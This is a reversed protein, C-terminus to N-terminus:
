SMSYFNPNYLAFTTRLKMIGTLIPQHGSSASYALNLCVQNSPSSGMATNFSSDAAWQKEPVGLALSPKIAGRTRAGLANSVCYFGHFLPQCAAVQHSAPSSTDTINLSINISDDYGATYALCVLEWECKVAKYTKYLTTLQDRLYWQQGATTRDPDFLDGLNWQYHSIAQVVACQLALETAYDLTVMLTPPM